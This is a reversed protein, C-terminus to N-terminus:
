RMLFAVVHQRDLCVLLPADFHRDVAPSHASHRLRSDRQRIEQALLQAYEADVYAALVAHAAGAGDDHIAAGHAAAGLARYFGLAAVDDGDFAQRLVTSEIRQLLRKAPVVSQLAPETRRTHQARGRMVQALVRMRGLSFHFVHEGTM